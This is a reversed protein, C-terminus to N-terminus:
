LSSPEKILQCQLGIRPFIADPAFWVDHITGADILAPTTVERRTIEELEDVSVYEVGGLNNTRFVPNPIQPRFWRNFTNSCNKVPWSLKYRAPPSDIHPGCCNPHTGYTIALTKIMLQNRMLWAIMEPCKKVFDNISVVNWFSTTSVLDNLSDIWALISNNLKDYEPCDLERYYIM